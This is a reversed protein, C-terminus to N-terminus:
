GKTYNGKDLILDKSYLGTILSYEGYYEKLVTIQMKNMKPRQREIRELNMYHIAKWLTPMDKAQFVRQFHKTDEENWELRYYM